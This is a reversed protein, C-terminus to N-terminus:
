RPPHSQTCYMRYGFIGGTFRFPNRGYHECVVNRAIRSRASKCLHAKLGLM